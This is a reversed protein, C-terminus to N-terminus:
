CETTNLYKSFANFFTYNNNKRCINEDSQDTNINDSVNLCLKEKYWQLYKISQEANTNGKLTKYNIFIM